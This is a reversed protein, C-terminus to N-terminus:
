EWSLINVLRRIVKPNGKNRRMVKVPINNNRSVMRLNRLPLILMEKHHSIPRLIGRRVHLMDRM